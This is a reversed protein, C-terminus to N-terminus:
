RKNAEAAFSTYSKQKIQKPGKKRHSMFDKVYCSKIKVLSTVKGLNRKHLPIYNNEHQKRRSEEM